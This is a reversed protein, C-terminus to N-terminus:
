NVNRKQKELAKARIELQLPLNSRWKTPSHHGLGAMKYTTEEIGSM